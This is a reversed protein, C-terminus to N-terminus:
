MASTTPTPSAPRSPPQACGAFVIVTVREPRRYLAVFLGM